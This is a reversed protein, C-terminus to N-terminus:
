PLPLDSFQFEVQHLSTVWTYYILKTPKGLKANGGDSFQFTGAASTPTGNEWNFGDCQFKQGAEDVLDVRQGLSNTWTYDQANDPANRRINARIQIQKNAEKV